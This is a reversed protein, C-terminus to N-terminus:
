STPNSVRPEPSGTRRARSCRLTWYGHMAFAARVTPPIRRMTAELRAGADLPFRRLRAERLEPPLLTGADRCHELPLLLGDRWFRDYLASIAESAEDDLDTDALALEGLDFDDPGLDPWLEDEPIALPTWRAAAPDIARRM